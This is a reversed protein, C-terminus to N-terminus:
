PRPCARWDQLRSPEARMAVAALEPGRAARDRGGFSCALWLGRVPRRAREGERSADPVGGLRRLRALAPAGRGDGRRGRRFGRGRQTGRRARRSRGPWRDRWRELGDLRVLRGDRAAGHSRGPPPVRISRARRGGHVCHRAPARRARDLVIRRARRHDGRGDRDRRRRAAADHAKRLLARRRDRGPQGRHDSLAIAAAVFGSIWVADSDLLELLYPQAAYFAWSFIGLQVASALM